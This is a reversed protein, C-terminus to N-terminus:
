IAPILREARKPLQARETRVVKPTTMPTAATMRIMDRPAPTWLWTVPWSSSSPGFRMVMAGPDPPALSPPASGSSSSPATLVRVVPSALATASSGDTVAAEGLTETVRGM